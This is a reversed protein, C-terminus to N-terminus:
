KKAVSAVAKKAADELDVAATIPLGSDRLINQAEQVNTGPLPPVCTFSTVRCTFSVLALDGRCTRSEPIWTQGRLCGWLLDAEKEKM